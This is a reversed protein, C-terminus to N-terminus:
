ACYHDGEVGRFIHSCLALLAATDQPYETLWGLSAVPSDLGPPHAWSFRLGLFCGPPKSRKKKECPWPDPCSLMNAFQSLLSWLLIGNGWKNRPWMCPCNTIQPLPNRFMASLQYHNLPIKQGPLMQM